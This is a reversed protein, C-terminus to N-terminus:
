SLHGLALRGSRNAVYLPLLGTYVIKSFWWTKEFMKNSQQINVITESKMIKSNVFLFYLHFNLSWFCDLYTWVVYCLLAPHRHLCVIKQSIQVVATVLPLALTSCISLCCKVVSTTRPIFRWVTTLTLSSFGQSQFVKNTCKKKYINVEHKIWTQFLTAWLCNFSYKIARVKKNLSFFRFSCIIILPNEQQRLIKVASGLITTLIICFFFLFM